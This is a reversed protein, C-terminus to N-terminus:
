AFCTYAHQGRGLQWSSHKTKQGLKRGGSLGTAKGAIWLRTICLAM